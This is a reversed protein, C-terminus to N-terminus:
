LGLRKKLLVRKSEDKVYAKIADELDVGFVVDDISYYAGKKKIIEKNIAKLILGRAEVDPQKLTELFMQPNREAYLLLNSHTIPNSNGIVGLIFAINDAKDEDKILAVAQTVAEARLKAASLIINADSAENLEKFVANLQVKEGNVMKYYGNPSGACEPHKRMAELEAKRKAPIRVSRHAPTFKYKMAAGRNDKITIDEGTENDFYSLVIGTSARGMYESLLVFYVFDSPNFDPKQAM